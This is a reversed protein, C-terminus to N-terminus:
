RSSFAGVKRTQLARYREGANLQLFSLDCAVNGAKPCGSRILPPFCERYEPCELLEQEILTVTSEVWALIGCELGTRLDTLTTVDPCTDLLLGKLAKRRDFVYQVPSTDEDASDMSDDSNSLPSTNEDASDMFDDSNSM